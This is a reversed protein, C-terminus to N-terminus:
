DLLRVPIGIFCSRFFFRYLCRTLYNSVRFLRIGWLNWMAGLVIRFAQVAMLVSDFASLLCRMGLSNFTEIAMSLLWRCATIFRM